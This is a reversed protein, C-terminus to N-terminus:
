FARFGGSVSGELVESVSGRLWFYATSFVAVCCGGGCVSFSGRCPFFM